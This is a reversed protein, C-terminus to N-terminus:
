ADEAEEPEPIGLAARAVQGRDHKWVIGFIEWEGCCGDENWHEPDAYFALAERLRSVAAQIPPYGAQLRWENVDEGFACAFREVLELRPVCGNRMCGLTIRDIGTRNQAARDSLGHGQLLATVAEGFEPIIRISM